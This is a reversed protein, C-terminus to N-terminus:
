THLANLFNNRKHPGRLCWLAGCQLESRTDIEKSKLHTFREPIGYLMANFFLGMNGTCVFEFQFLAVYPPLENRTCTKAITKVYM